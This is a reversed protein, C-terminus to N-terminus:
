RGSQEGAPPWHGNSQQCGLPDVDLGQDGVAEGQFLSQLGKLGDPPTLPDFDHQLTVGGVVVGSGGGDRGWGWWAAQAPRWALPWRIGIDPQQM